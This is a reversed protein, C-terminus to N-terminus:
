VLLTNFTPPCESADLVGLRGSTGAGLYVLRGDKAIRSAIADVAKAIAASELEVAAAVKGDEANMLQVIENTSLTDIGASTANPQETVLQHM